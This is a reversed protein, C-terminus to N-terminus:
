RKLIEIENLFYERQAKLEKILTEIQAQFYERDKLHEERDNLRAKESNLSDNQLNSIADRFFDDDNLYILNKNFTLDDM